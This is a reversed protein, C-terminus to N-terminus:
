ERTANDGTHPEGNPMPKAPRQFIAPCYFHLSNPVVYLTGNIRILPLLARAVPADDLDGTSRIPSDGSM